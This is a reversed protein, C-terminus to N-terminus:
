YDSNLPALLKVKMPSIVPPQCSECKRFNTLKNSEIPKTTKDKIVKCHPRHCVKPNNFPNYVWGTYYLILTFCVFTIM